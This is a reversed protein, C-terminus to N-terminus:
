KKHPVVPLHGEIFFASILAVLSLILLVLFSAHMASSMALENVGYQNLKVSGITSMSNLSEYKLYLFVTLTSLIVSGGINGM